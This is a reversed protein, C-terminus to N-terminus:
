WDVPLSAQLIFRGLRLDSGLGVRGLGGDLGGFFLWDWASCGVAEM